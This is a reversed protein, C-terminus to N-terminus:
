RKSAPNAVAALTKRNILGALSKKEMGAFNRANINHLIFFFFMIKREIERECVYLIM